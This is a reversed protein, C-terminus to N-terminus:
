LLIKKSLNIGYVSRRKATKRMSMRRISEPANEHDNEHTRNAVNVYVKAKTTKWVCRKWRLDHFVKTCLTNFVVHAFIIKIFQM